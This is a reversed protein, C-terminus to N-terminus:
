PRGAAETEVRRRERGSVRGKAGSTARRNRPFQVYSARVSGLCWLRGAGDHETRRSRSALQGRCVRCRGSGLCGGARRSHRDPHRSTPLGGSRSRMPGKALLTRRVVVEGNRTLWEAVGEFREAHRPVLILRLRPHQLRAARYAALAAAEEGEMTSGAVFVLDSHRFGWSRASTEPRLTTGIAKWAMMSSRVPSVSGTARFEWSWLGAHM